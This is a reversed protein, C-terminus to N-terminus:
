SAQGIFIHVTTNLAAQEGPPPLQNVVRGVLDREGGAAPVAQADTELLLGAEAVRRRALTETQGLVNPVIAKAPEPAEAPRDSEFDLQLKSLQDGSLRDMAEASPFIAGSGSPGPLMRLEMTVRGLRYAGGRSALEARAAEIERNTNRILTALSIAGAKQEQQHVTAELDERTKKEAALDKEVSALAALQKELAQIKDRQEVEIRAAEQMRLEHAKGQERSRELDGELDRVRKGLDHALAASDVVVAPAASAAVRPPLDARIWSAGALTGAFRRSPGRDAAEAGAGEDLPWRALLAPGSEIRRYLGRLIDEGSRAQDWLRVEALAGAFSRDTWFSNQGIRLEDPYPTYSGQAPRSAKLVGNVYLSILRGDFTAALHSWRDRALGSDTEVEYHQRDVTVMISAKTATARLEFGTAAGHCSIAPSRWSEVDRAPRAWAEITLGRPFDLARASPISVHDGDGDFALAPATPPSDLAAPLLPVDADAIWSTGQLEAPPRPVRNVAVEGRGDDLPWYGILGGENGVLRRNSTAQVEAATRARSWIRLETGLGGFSSLRVPEANTVRGTTADAARSEEQGDLYLILEAAAKVLAVHHVRGDGITHRTALRAHNAGDSRTAIVIGTADVELAFPFAGSEARKGLIATSENRGPEISIWAEVAFDADRALDLEPAHPIVIEGDPRALLPAKGGPEVFGGAPFAEWRASGRLRAPEATRVNRGRSGAGDDLPWCGILGPEDGNARRHMGAVIEAEGVARSWIRAESMAGAFHFKSGWRGLRVIGTGEFPAHGTAAGDLVGNVFIAQERRAADYRFVLHTWTEAPLLSRGDTDNSYFGFHPRRARLALHLGANLSTEDTGFLPLDEMAADAALRIWAEATFSRGPLQLVDAPALVACDDRGDFLLANVM